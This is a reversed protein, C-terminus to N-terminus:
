DRRVRLRPDLRERLADGLVNVCLVLITLAGGPIMIVWPAIQFMFRGEAIMAGWSPISPPMGAGLFSLIAEILIASAFVYTAQVTVPGITNPLIHLGLIKWTPTGITRAADIFPLGKVNVVTSRVVRAMRPTDNVVIAVVVTWFGAGWLAVLAIALLLSPIAMMGDMLRMLTLEGWRFYGGFLGITVGLVVTLAAVTLGITMSTRTGVLVMLIIERGLHDTGFLHDSSPPKLRLLPNISTADSIVAPAIFAVILFIVFTILAIATYPTAALDKVVGLAAGISRRIGSQREVAEFLNADTM